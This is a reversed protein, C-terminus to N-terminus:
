NNNNKDSLFIINKRSVYIDLDDDWPIFGEHRIAGLMTGGCLSYEINNENCFRLFEKFIELIENQIFKIDKKM